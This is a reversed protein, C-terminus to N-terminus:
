TTAFREFYDVDGSIERIAEIKIESGGGELGIISLNPYKRNTIYQNEWGTFIDDGSGTNSKM